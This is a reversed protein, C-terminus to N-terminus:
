VRWRSDFGADRTIQDLQVLKAKAAENGGSAALALWRQAEDYHGAKGARSGLNFQAVPCGRDAAMRYLQSGKNSDVKVGIGKDYMHALDTMAEVSGLEVARKFIKAAKKENKM